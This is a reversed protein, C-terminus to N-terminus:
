GLMITSRGKRKPKVLVSCIEINNVEKIVEQLKEVFWELNRFDKDTKKAKKTVSLIDKTRGQKWSEKNLSETFLQRIFSPSSIAL